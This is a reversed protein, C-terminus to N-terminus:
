VKSIVYLYFRRHIPTGLGTGLSEYIGLLQYNNLQSQKNFLDFTELLSHMSNNRIDCTFRDTKM